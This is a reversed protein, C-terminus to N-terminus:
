PLPGIRSLWSPRRKAASVLAEIGLLLIVAGCILGAINNSPVACFIWIACLVFLAGIVIAAIHGSSRQPELQRDQRQM